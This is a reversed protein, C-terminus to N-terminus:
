ESELLYLGRTWNMNTSNGNGYVLGCWIVIEAVRWKWERKKRRVRLGKAEGPKNIGWKVAFKVMKKSRRGAQASDASRVGSRECPLLLAESSRLEWWVCAMSTHTDLHTNGLSRFLARETKSVNEAGMLWYNIRAFERTILWQGTKRKYANKM